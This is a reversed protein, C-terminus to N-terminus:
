MKQSLLVFSTILIKESTKVLQHVTTLRSSMWMWLFAMWTLQQQIVLPLVGRTEQLLM